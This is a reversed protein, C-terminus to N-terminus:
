GFTMSQIRKIWLVLSSLFFIVSISFYMGDIPLRHRRRRRRRRPNQV